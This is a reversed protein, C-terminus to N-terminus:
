PTQSKYKRLFYYVLPSFPKFFRLIYGDKAWDLKALKM